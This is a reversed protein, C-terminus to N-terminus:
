FHRFQFAPIHFGLYNASLLVYIMSVLVQLKNSDLVCLSVADSQTILNAHFGLLIKRSVSFFHRCLFASLTKTEVGQKRKLCIYASDFARIWIETRTEVVRRPFLRNQMYYSKYTSDLTIGACIQTELFKAQLHVTITWSASYHNM